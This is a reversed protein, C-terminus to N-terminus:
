ENNSNTINYLLVFAAAHCRPVQGNGIAHLRKNRNDTTPLVRPTNREWEFTLHKNLDYDNVWQQLDIRQPQLSTWGKPWMMLLEVWDPNLYEGPKAGQQLLNGPISGREKQSIPLTSNKADQATPTAFVNVIDALNLSHTNKGDASVRRGKENIKLNQHTMDQTTPTPFFQVAATLNHAVAAKHGKREKVTNYGEEGSSRPTPWKNTHVVYDALNIGYKQSCDKNTRYLKGNETITVLRGATDDSKRPTPISEKPLYGYENEKITLALTTLEWCVGRFMIGWNPFTASYETYDGLLSRQATKWTCTHPDYRAFWGTCKEGCDAVRARLAKAKELWQFIKVHSVAPYLWKIAEKGYGNSLKAVSQTTPESNELTKLYQTIIQQGTTKDKCYYGAHITKLKWPAFQKGASINGQLYEAVQVRSYLWNM